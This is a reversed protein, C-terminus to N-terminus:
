YGLDLVWYHGSAVYGVGVRTLACNVINRKHAPSALWLKMAEAASTRGRAVNEAGPAPYGADRIRESWTRGDASTHSLYRKASMDEAHHQASANLRQSIKLPECGSKKRASDALSDVQTRRASLSTAAEAPASPLATLALAAALALAAVAARRRLAAQRSATRDM